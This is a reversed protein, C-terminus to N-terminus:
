LDYREDARNFLQRLRRAGSRENPLLKLRGEKGDDIDDLAHQRKHPLRFIPVDDDQRSDTRLASFM